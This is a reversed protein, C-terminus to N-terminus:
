TDAIFRDTILKRNVASRKVAKGLV